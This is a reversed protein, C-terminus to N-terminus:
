SKEYFEKRGKHSVTFNKEGKLSWNLDHTLTMNQLPTITHIHMYSKHIIDGLFSQRKEGKIIHKVVLCLKKSSPSLFFLLIFVMQLARAMSELRCM